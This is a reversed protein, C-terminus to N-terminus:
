FNFRRYDLIAVPFEPKSSPPLLESIANVIGIEQGWRRKSTKLHCFGSIIDSYNRIM